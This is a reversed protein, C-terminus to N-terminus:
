ICDPHDTLSQADLRPGVNWHSRHIGGARDFGDDEWAHNKLIFGAHSESIRRGNLYYRRRYLNGWLSSTETLRM